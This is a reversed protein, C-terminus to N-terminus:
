ETDPEKSENPNVPLSVVDAKNITIRGAMKAWAVGREMASLVQVGLRQYGMLRAAVSLLEAKDMPGSALVACVANAAEQQPLDKAERRHAEERSIRFGQYKEPDQGPLWLIKGGEQPLIQLGLERFLAANRTRIRSNGKPIGCSQLVRKTLLGESVPSETEMVKQIKALLIDTHGPSLYEEPTLPQEALEAARYPEAGEAKVPPKDSPSKEPAPASTSSQRSQKKLRNLEALLRDTERRSDELWDISRMRIINWGTRELAPLVGAERWLPPEGPCGPGDLLIGALYRDSDQPDVVAIDVRCLSEGIGLRFSFGSKQLIKCISDKLGNEGSRSFGWPSKPPQPLAQGQAYLLFDRLAEAGQSFTRSLDIQEPAASSFVVMEERGCSIATNLQKWGDERDLPGFCLDKGDFGVSLLIVDRKEGQLNEPTKFWLPEPDGSAWEALEKERSQLLARAFLDEILWRQSGTFAAVGISQKRLEPDRFRRLLEDVVAQAETQNWQRLPDFAGATRVLHVRSRRGPPPLTYLSNHYFRRNFFAALSEHIGSCRLLPLEPMGLAICSSLANESNGEKPPVNWPLASRFPDPSPTQGPDGTLISQRGRALVGFARSSPIGSADALITLDFSREKGLYRAALVPSTIVCPCLLPLLHPLGELLQRIDVGRGDEPAAQLIELEGQFIEGPRAPIRERLRRLIEGRDLERQRERLRALRALKEEPRGSSFDELGEAEMALRALALYVGKRYCPLVERHFIGGEYAKVVPGLGVHLAERCVGKWLTWERLQGIGEQLTDCHSLQRAMWDEPEPPSLELLRDLKEAAQRFRQWAASFDRATEVAEPSSAFRLRLERGGAVAELDLATKRTREAQAIYASWDTHEGQYLLDAHEGFGALAALAALQEKQYDALRALHRELEEPDPEERCFVSLYKLMKKRGLHRSLTWKGSLEKWDAELTFGDQALFSPNWQELLEEKIQLTREGHATLRDAAELLNDLSSSKAWIEPIGEWRALCGAAQAFWEWDEPLDRFSRGFLDAIRRRADLADRGAERFEDMVEPLQDRLQQTYQSRNVGQLPHRYPHDVASAAEVLRRVMQEQRELTGEGIRAAEERGFRIADGASASQEYRGIIEYLTLGCPQIRRIGELKGNLEEELTRLQDGRFGEAAPVPSVSSSFATRAAEKLQRIIGARQPSQSHLSLCFPGLGLQELAEELDCLVCNKEASLLVTKGQALANAAIATVTGTRGTGPPTCLAFSKGEQAARIAALQFPDMELPLLSVGSVSGAATASSTWNTGGTLLNAAAPSEPLSDRRQRLDNWLAFRSHPFIGLVAGELLDWRSQGAIAQRLASLFPSLIQGGSGALSDPLSVTLGFDQRLMELLPQNLQPQDDRMALSFVSGNGAALRVPLLLLPAYRPQESVGSEYWRLLGLALFLADGGSEEASLRSLELLSRAAPAMEPEPLASYLRLSSLEATVFGEYVGLRHFTELDYGTWPTRWEAPRSLLSLEAGASLIGELTELSSALIPLSQASLLNLLPNGTGLELLEREWVLRKAAATLPAPLPYSVTEKEDEALLRGDAGRVPAPLPRIHNLRARRLDLIRGNQTNSLELAAIQEAGEFRIAKRSALAACDALTLKGASFCQSLLACNNGLLEPFTSDELWVGAFAHEGKFIILPNLGLAELCSVYLLTLELVNGARQGIIDGCLRLEAGSEGERAPLLELGMEQLATYVAAAQQRARVPSQGQYGNLSANKTWTDMWVSARVLVAEVAPSRPTVFAALLEPPLGVDEKKEWLCRSYPLFCLPFAEEALTEGTGSEATICLRGTQKETIGALFDMNFSLPINRLVARQGPLIDITTQYTQTLASGCEVRLCVGELPSPDTNQISIERLVPLGNYPLAFHVTDAAVARLRIKEQPDM